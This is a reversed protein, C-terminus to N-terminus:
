KGDYGYIDIMFFVSSIYYKLTALYVLEICPVKTTKHWTGVLTQTVLEGFRWVDLGLFKKYFVYTKGARSLVSQAWRQLQPRVFASLQRGGLFLKYVIAILLRLSDGGHLHRMRCNLSSHQRFFLTYLTQRLTRLAFHLCRSWTCVITSTSRWRQPAGHHLPHCVRKRIWLDHTRIRAGSLKVDHHMQMWCASIVPSTSVPRNMCNM